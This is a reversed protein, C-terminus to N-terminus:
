SIIYFLVINFKSDLQTEPVVHKAFVTLTELGRCNGQVWGIGLCPGPLPLVEVARSMTCQYYVCFLM